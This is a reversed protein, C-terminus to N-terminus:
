TIIIEKEIHVENLESQDHTVLLCPIDWDKIYKSIIKQAEFGNKKDLSSFPEDLILLHPRMAIARAIAVRQQQGGSLEHPMKHLHDNLNLALTMHDTHPFDKNLAYNINKKANIHPFLAFDQFVYGIRRREPPLFTNEDMYVKNNCVVNGSDANKLGAIVNLLTSKGSGSEGKILGISGNSIDFNLNEVLCKEDYSFTLNKVTISMNIHNIYTMNTYLAETKEM